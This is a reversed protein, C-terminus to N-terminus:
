KAYKGPLGETHIDGKYLFFRVGTLKQDGPSFNKIEQSIKNQLNKDSLLAKKLEDSLFVKYKQGNIKIGNKLVDTIKKNLSSINIDKQAINNKRNPNLINEESTVEMAVLSITSLIIHFAVRRLPGLRLLISM